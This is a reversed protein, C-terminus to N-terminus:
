SLQPRSSLAYIEAYTYVQDVTSQIEVIDTLPHLVLCAKHGYEGRAYGALLERIKHFEIQEEASPSIDVLRSM